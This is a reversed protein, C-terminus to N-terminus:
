TLWKQEGLTYIYACYSCHPIINYVKIVNTRMNIASYLLM